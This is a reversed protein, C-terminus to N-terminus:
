PVIQVQAAVRSVPAGLLVEKRQGRRGCAGPEMSVVNGVFVGEKKVRPRCFVKAAMDLESSVAGDAQGFCPSLRNLDDAEVSRCQDLFSLLTQLM